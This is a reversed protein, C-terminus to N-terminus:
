PRVVFKKIGEPVKLGLAALSKLVDALITAGIAAMSVPILWKLGSEQGVGYAVGYVLVLPTLKRWTFEYFRQVLFEGTRIAAAVGLVWAVVVGFVIAKVGDIAWLADLLDKIWAVAINVDM